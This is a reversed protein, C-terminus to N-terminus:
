FIAATYAVSIRAARAVGLHVVNELHESAEVDGAVARTLSSHEEVRRAEAGVDSIAAGSHGAERGVCLPCACRPSPTLFVWKLRERHRIM